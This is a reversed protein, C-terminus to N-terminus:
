AAAEQYHADQVSDIAEANVNLFAGGRSGATVSVAVTLEVFHDELKEADEPSMLREFVLVDCTDGKPETLVSLRTGYAENTDRKRQIAASRVLGKIHMINAM